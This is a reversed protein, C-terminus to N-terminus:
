CPSKRYRPRGSRARVDEWEVIATAAKADMRVIHLQVDRPARVRREMQMKRTRARARYGVGTWEFAGCMRRVAAPVSGHFALKARACELETVM